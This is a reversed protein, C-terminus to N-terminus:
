FFIVVYNVRVSVFIFGSAVFKSLIVYLFLFFAVSVVHSHQTLFPLSAERRV